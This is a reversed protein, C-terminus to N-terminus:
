HIADFEDGLFLSSFFSDWGFTESHCFFLLGHLIRVM